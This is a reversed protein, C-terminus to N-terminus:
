GNKVRVFGVTSLDTAVVWDYRRRNSGVNLLCIIRDEHYLEYYIQANWPAIWIPSDGCEDVV